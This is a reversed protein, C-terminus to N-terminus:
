GLVQVEATCCQVPLEIEIATAPVLAGSLSSGLLAKQPHRNPAYLDNLLSVQASIRAQGVTANQVQRDIQRGPAFVDMLM